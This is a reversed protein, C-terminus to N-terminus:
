LEEAVQEYQQKDLFNKVFVHRAHPAYDNVLEKFNEQTIVLDAEKPIEKLACNKVTIGTIGQDELVKRFISAGMASSGMGADCAFYILSVSTSTSNLNQVVSARGKLNQAQDIAESFQEDESEKAMKVIPMAVLLSVVTSVAVGALVALQTGKASVAMLAFISGPAAPAVLGAGLLNFTLIGAMSGVIPAVILLPNMLIYPFYIEHIGGFFHIVIAGPATTKSNGRGFFTYALLVGLGPGPNTEILFLISKGLEQAQITGLPTFVGHNIANNLFLVKAPEVILSTMFILDNDTLWQVASGALATLGAVTPGVLSFSILTLVLALIGASFNNVLMEFGVKVKPLLFKDLQKILFAALPGLIMAGLFMPVDSSVIAGMVVTAGVIGGRHDYVLKGGNYAILIPLLYNITPGVLKALEENPFWGVEIFLATILGWAIFAPIAPMVIAGLYGGFKKIKNQM